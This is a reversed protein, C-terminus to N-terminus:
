RATSATALRRISRVIRDTAVAHAGTGIVLARYIRGHVGPFAAYTKASLRTIGDTADALDFALMYRSFRHRGILTLRDTPRSDSVEFGAAPQTGLIRALPGDGVRLSTAVYRELASWVVDRSAAISIAHEDVFPLEGNDREANSVGDPTDVPL